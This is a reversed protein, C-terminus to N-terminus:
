YGALLLDISIFAMGFNRSPKKNQSNRGKLDFAEVAIVPPELTIAISNRGKLDFAEV